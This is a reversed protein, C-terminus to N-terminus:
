RHRQCQSEVQSASLAVRGTINVTRIIISGGSGGSALSSHANSVDRSNARIYGDVTLTHSIDM